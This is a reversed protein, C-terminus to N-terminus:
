IRRRPIPKLGTARRLEIAQRILLRMGKRCIQARRIDERIMETTGADVTLGAAQRARMAAGWATVGDIARCYEQRERYLIGRLEVPLGSAHPAQRGGPTPPKNKRSKAM